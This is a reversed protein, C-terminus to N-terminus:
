KLFLLLALLGAGAAVAVGGGAATSQLNDVPSYPQLDYYVKGNVLYYRGGDPVNCELGQAGVTLKGNVQACLSRFEDEASAPASASAGGSPAAAPEGGPGILPKTMMDQLSPGSPADETAPARHVTPGQSTAPARHVTPEEATYPSTSVLVPLRPQAALVISPSATKMVTTSSTTTPSPASTSTGVTATLLDLGYGCRVREYSM